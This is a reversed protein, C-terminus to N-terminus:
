FGLVTTVDLQGYTADQLIWPQAKNVPSLQLTTSWEGSEFDIGNHDIKEVFFDGSMTIGAGANAAKPRRKATVRTGIELQLLMPWLTGDGFPLNRVAAGRFTLQQLRLLPDKRNAVIWTAADTAENDSAIDITRTFNKRGFRKQSVGTTDEAHAIIGGTRTIDAVNLVLTPDPIYKIDGEYPYEGAGVNEGFTFQSTTKLYRDFRSLYAVGESGEFLNGFASNAAQQASALVSDGNKVTSPGMVSAGTGISTPGTYGGLALQRTIRASELEGAYGKTANYLDAIEGATLTRAFLAVMAVLGGMGAGMDTGNFRGGVMITNSPAAVLGINSTLSTSSGVLVGDVYLATTTNGGGPAQAPTFVIHHAKGDNLTGAPANSTSIGIGGGYVQGTMSGDTDARLECSFPASVNPGPVTIKLITVAGAEPYDVRVWASITASWSGGTATSPFNIYTSRFSLGTGIITDLQSSGGSPAGQTFLVGAGGPDGAMGHATGAAAGGPGAPSQQTLLPPGVNGSSEAFSTSGSPEALMWFYAPLKAAVADRYATRLDANQLIAFPGVCPTSSIGMFGAAEEPWESPWNEVYGRTWFNRIIPGVTGFTTAVPGPEHQAADILITGALATGTTALQVTHTPQTATFTMSLRVYAGTTVTSTGTGIGTVSIQQTSATSQRVYASATYQRGPLCTVSWSLGQVTAGAGITYTIANAGEFPTTTTVTPVVGGVRVLWAPAAAGNVYGNFSPDNGTNISNLLNGVGVLLQADDVYLVDSAAPTGGQRARLSAWAAGAPSVLNQVSQTWASGAPVATAVGLSSSLFARDSNFWDICGRADAWGAVSSFWMSAQYLTNPLVQYQMTTGAGGSAVAGPPTMRMSFTGTRAFASSQLLAWGSQATWDALALGAEFTTNTNIPGGGSNPWMCRPLIQRYPLLGAIYPSGANTSNLAEDANFWDVDMTGNQNLDLEYQRGRNATSIGLARTTLESWVPVAAPDFPDANFAVGLFIDPRNLIM